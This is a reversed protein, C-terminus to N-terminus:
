EILQITDLETSLHIKGLEQYDVPPFDLLDNKIDYQVFKRKIIINLYLYIRSIEHSKFVYNELTTFFIKPGVFCM